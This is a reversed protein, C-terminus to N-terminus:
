PKYQRIQKKYTFLATANGAVIGTLTIYLIHQQIWDLPPSTLTSAALAAIWMATNAILMGM